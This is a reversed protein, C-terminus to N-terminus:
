VYCYKLFKELVEKPFGIVIEEFIRGVTGVPVGHLIGVPIGATIGELVGAAIEEFTGAFIAESIRFKKRLNCLLSFVLLFKKLYKKLKFFLSVEPLLKLFFSSIHFQALFNLVEFLVFVFSLLPKYKM